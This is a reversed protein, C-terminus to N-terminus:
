TYMTSVPRVRLENVNCKRGIQVTVLKCNPQQLPQLSCTNTSNRNVGATHSRQVHRREITSDAIATTHANSYQLTHNMSNCEFPQTFSYEASTGITHRHMTRDSHMQNLRTCKVALRSREIVLKRYQMQEYQQALLLKEHDTEQLDEYMKFSFLEKFLNYRKLLTMDEQQLSDILMEHHYLNSHIHTHYTCLPICLM